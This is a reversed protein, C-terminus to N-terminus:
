AVAMPGMQMPRARNMASIIHTSCDGRVSLASVSAEPADPVGSTAQVGGARKTRFDDGFTSKGAVMPDVPKTWEKSGEERGTEVFEDLGHLKVLDSRIDHGGGRLQGESGGCM